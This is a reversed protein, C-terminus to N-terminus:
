THMDVEYVGLEPFCLFWMLVSTRGRVQAGRFYVLLFVSLCRLTEM